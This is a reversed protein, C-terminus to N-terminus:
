EKLRDLLTQKHGLLTRLGADCERLLESAPEAQKRVAVLRVEETKILDM